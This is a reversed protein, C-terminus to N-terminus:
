CCYKLGTSFSLAKWWSSASAQEYILTLSTLINQPQSCHSPTNKQEKESFSSKLQKKKPNLHTRQKKPQKREVAMCKQHPTLFAFVFNASCFCVIHASSSGSVLQMLLSPSWCLYTTQNATQKCFIHLKKKFFTFFASKKSKQQM